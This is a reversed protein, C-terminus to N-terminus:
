WAAGTAGLVRPLRGNVWVEAYDDAVIEFVATAGRTDFAAVREPVTVNIRYWM